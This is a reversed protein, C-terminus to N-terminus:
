NLQQVKLHLDRVKAIASAGYRQLWENPKSSDTPLPLEAVLLQNLQLRAEAYWNLAEVSNQMSSANQPTATNHQMTTQAERLQEVQERIESMKTEALAVGDRVGEGLMRKMEQEKLALTKRIESFQEAVKLKMQEQTNYMERQKRDWSQAIGNLENVRERLEGSLSQVKSQLLPYAKKVSLVEHGKHMGHIVCESCVCKCECDLCFYSVPEEPHAPCFTTVTHIGTSNPPKVNSTSSTAPGTGVYPQQQATAQKTALDQGPALKTNRATDWKYDNQQLLDVPSMRPLGSMLTEVSHPSFDTSPPLGGRLRAVPPAASTVDPTKAVFKGLQKKTAPPLQTVLHVASDADVNTVAGCVQCELDVNEKTDGSYGQCYLEKGACQLCLNHSCVLILADELPEKCKACEFQQSVGGPPQM